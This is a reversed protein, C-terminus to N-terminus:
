VLCDLLYASIWTVRCNKLAYFCSFNVKLFIRIFLGPLIPKQSIVSSMIDIITSISGLVLNNYKVSENNVIVYGQTFVYSNVKLFVGM